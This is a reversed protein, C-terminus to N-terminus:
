HRRASRRDGAILRDVAEALATEETDLGNRECYRVLQVLHNILWGHEEPAPVRRDALLVVDGPAPAFRPDAPASHQAATAAPPGPFATVVSHKM